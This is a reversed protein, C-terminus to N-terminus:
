EGAWRQRPCGQHRRGDGGAWYLVPQEMGRGALSPPTRQWLGPVSASSPKHPSLSEPAARRSSLSPHEQGQRIEQGGGHGHRDRPLLPVSTPSSGGRATPAAPASTHATAPVDAHLDPRRM